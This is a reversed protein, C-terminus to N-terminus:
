KLVVEHRVGIEKVFIEDHSIVLLTGQYEKISNTLIDVNQLDLNNTPEDLIIMDPAKRSVSLACLLLRLREGGSLVGCRKDWTEKGFLFRSLLTKIESEQLATDNFQRAFDYVTATKDILSYEQDVYVTNFDSRSIKGISPQLKGLLLRILTTKGSGNSGKIQIRDGSRIEISLNEKWLNERDYTYNIGEASVLLKGEHLDPDHFSVKMQEVNKRGSRLDRLDGSLDSIKDAHISKLRSSNKEANNRMTNMMIRAVGSKEQKGKARNDLKQKRELTEREKEKAKKLARERSHIDNQLAEEEVEKQAAYFDYNGGYAAIGQNSLEFVTDALNLLTRDHSVMVVTASTKDLWNYLINRAEPDLHNTPEDLLVIDPQHIQIGALFVKAKQGGSLRKLKLHLSIPDMKWYELAQKCREEIDWDDNLLEFYLENIEGETIKQLANLKLNITM